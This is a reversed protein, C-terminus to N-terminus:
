TGKFIAEMFYLPEHEIFIHNISLISSTNGRQVSQKGVRWKRLAIVCAITCSLKDKVLLPHGPLLGWSGDQHQNEVIWDLCEPFCPVNPTDRSPVMAVWATDYASVSLNIKRGFMEKIGAM